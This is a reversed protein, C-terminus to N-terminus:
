CQQATQSVLRCIIRIGRTGVLKIPLPLPLPDVQKDPKTRIVNGQPNRCSERRGGKAAKYSVHLIQSM